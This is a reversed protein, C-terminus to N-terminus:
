RFSATGLSVRFDNRPTRAIERNSQDKAGVWMEDLGKEVSVPEPTWLRNRSRGGPCPYIVLNRTQERRSFGGEESESESRSRAKPM